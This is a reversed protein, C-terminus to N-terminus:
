FMKISNRINSIKPKRERVRIALHKNIENTKKMCGKQNHQNKNNKRQKRNFFKRSRM